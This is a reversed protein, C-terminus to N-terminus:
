LESSMFLRFRRVVKTAISFVIVGMLVRVLV